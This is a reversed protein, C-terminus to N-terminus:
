HTPDLKVSQTPIGDVLQCYWVASWSTEQIEFTEGFCTLWLEYYALLNDGLYIVM